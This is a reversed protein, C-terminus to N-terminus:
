SLKSTGSTAFTRYHRQKGSVSTWWGNFEMCPACSQKRTRRKCSYTKITQYHAVLFSFATLLSPKLIMICVDDLSQATVAVGESSCWGQPCLIPETSIASLGGYSNIILICAVCTDSVLFKYSEQPTRGLEYTGRSMGTWKSYYVRINLWWTM